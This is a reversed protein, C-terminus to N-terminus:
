PAPIQVNSVINSYASEQGSTNVATTAYCYATGDIVNSDTYLTTTDLVSNIMSYSGCSATYGARYINYGAINSSTSANWSLSVTHVPAPTGTGMIAATTTPAQANSIISLTASATGAVTPSFTLKFSTSQGAAITTPLALGSITFQTNNTSAATLTVGAGSASLTGSASGSTGAVVNGLNFSSPTVMLQGAATSSTGTGSLSISAQANSANSSIGASATFSGAANPTFDFTLTASQGVGISVPLTPSTVSFYQTSVSASSITISSTGSNTASVSLAKSSGATVSGFNLSSSSLSLTGVQQQQQASRGASVGQCAILFMSFCLIVSAGAVQKFWWMSHDKVPIAGEGDCTWLISLTRISKPVTYEAFESRRSKPPEHTEPCFALTSYKLM